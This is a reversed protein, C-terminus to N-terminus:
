TSIDTIASQYQKSVKKGGLYMFMPNAEPDKARQEAMKKDRIARLDIIRQKAAFKKRDRRRGQSLQQQKAGKRAKAKENEMENTKKLTEKKFQEDGFVLKMGVRSTGWRYLRMMGSHSWPTMKFKRLRLGSFPQALPYHFANARDAFQADSSPILYCSSVGFTTRKRHVGDAGGESRVINFRTRFETEQGRETERRLLYQSPESPLADINQSVEGITPLYNAYFDTATGQSPGRRQLINGADVFAKSYTTDCYKAMKAMRNGSQYLNFNSRLHPPLSGMKQRWRKQTWKRTLAERAWEKEYKTKYNEWTMDETSTAEDALCQALRDIEAVVSSIWSIIQRVNADYFYHNTCRLDLRTTTPDYHKQSGGILACAFSQERTMEPFCHKLFIHAKATLERTRKADGLKDPSHHSRQEFFVPVDEFGFKFPPLSENLAHAAEARKKLRRMVSQKRTLEKEFESQEEESVDFKTSISPPEMESQSTLAQSGSGTITEVGIPLLLWLRIRQEKGEFIRVRRFLRVLKSV